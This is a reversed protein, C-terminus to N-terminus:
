SREPPMVQVNLRRDKWVTDDVRPQLRRLLEIDVDAFSVEAAPRSGDGPVKLLEDFPPFGFKQLFESLDGEEFDPPLNSIWLKAM